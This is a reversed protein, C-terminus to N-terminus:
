LPALTYSTNYIRAGQYTRGGYRPSVTLRQPPSPTETQNSTKVAVLVVTYVGDTLDEIDCRAQISGTSAVKLAECDRRVGNVLLYFAQPFAPGAYAGEPLIKPSEINPAASASCAVMLLLHFAARKM